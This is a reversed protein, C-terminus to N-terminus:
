GLGLLGRMRDVLYSHQDSCYGRHWSTAPCTDPSYLMSKVATAELLDVGENVLTYLM